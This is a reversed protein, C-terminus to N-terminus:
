WQRDAWTLVESQSRLTVVPWGLARFRTQRDTETGHATKVEVLHMGARRHWVLLDPFGNGMRACDAVLWGLGRFTDRVEGHSADVRAARM